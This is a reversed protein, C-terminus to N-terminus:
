TDKTSAGQPLLPWKSKLYNDIADRVVWALSVKNEEAIRELFQYQQEPFSISARVTREPSDTEQRKSQARMAKGGPINLRKVMNCRHPSRADEIPRRRSVCPGLRSSSAVARAASRTRSSMAQGAEVLRQAIEAIVPSTCLRQTFALLLQDTRGISCENRMPLFRNPRLFDDDASPDHTSCARLRNANAIELNGRPWQQPTSRGIRRSPWPPTLRVFGTFLSERCAVLGSPLM